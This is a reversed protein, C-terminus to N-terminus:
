FHIKNFNYHHLPGMTYRSASQVKFGVIRTRSETPGKDPFQNTHRTTTCRRSNRNDTMIKQFFRYKAATQHVDKDKISTTLQRGRRHPTISKSELLRLEIRLPPKRLPTSRTIMTGTISTQSLFTRCFQLLSKHLYKM